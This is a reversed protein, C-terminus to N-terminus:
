SQMGNLKIREQELRSLFYYKLFEREQNSPNLLKINEDEMLKEYTVQPQENPNYKPRSQIVRPTAEFYSSM